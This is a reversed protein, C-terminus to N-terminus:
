ENWNENSKSLNQNTDPKPRSGYVLRKALIDIYQPSKCLTKHEKVIQLYTKGEPKLKYEIWANSYPEAIENLKPNLYASWLVVGATGGIAIGAITELNLEM